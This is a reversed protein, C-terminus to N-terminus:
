TFGGNPSPSLNDNNLLIQKTTENAYPQLQPQKEEISSCDYTNLKSVFDSLDWRCLHDEGSDM